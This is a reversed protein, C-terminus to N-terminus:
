SSRRKRRVNWRIEKLTTPNLLRCQIDQILRERLTHESQAFAFIEKINTGWKKIKKAQEKIGKAKAGAKAQHSYARVQLYRTNYPSMEGEQLFFADYKTIFQLTIQNTTGQMRLGDVVASCRSFWGRIFYIALNLQLFYRSRSVKIRVQLNRCRWRFCASKFNKTNEKADDCNRVQSWRVGM